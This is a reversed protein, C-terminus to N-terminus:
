RYKYGTCCQYRGGPALITQTTTTTVLATTTAVTAPAPSAGFTATFARPLPPPLLGGIVNNITLAGTNPFNTLAASGCFIGTYTAPAGSTAYSCTQTYQALTNSIVPTFSPKTGAFCTSTGSMYTMQIGFVDGAVHKSYDYSFTPVATGILSPLGAAVLSCGSM